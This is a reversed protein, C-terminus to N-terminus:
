PLTVKEPTQWGPQRHEVVVTTYIGGRVNFIGSLRMFRPECAKVLDGLIQNTVAEHFAGEDRYSWMYLKLSKLEICHKDPVYEIKFTAFCAPSNPYMSVYRTIGNQYRIISYKWIKVPNAPCALCSVLVPYRTALILSHSKM